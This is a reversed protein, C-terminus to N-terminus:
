VHARGIKPPLEEAIKLQRVLKKELLALRGNRGELTPLSEAGRELSWSLLQDSLQHAAALDDAMELYRARLSDSAAEFQSRFLTTYPFLTSRPPRRIM